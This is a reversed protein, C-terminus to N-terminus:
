ILSRPEVHLDLDVPVEETYLAEAVAIGRHPVVELTLDHSLAVDHDQVDHVEHDLDVELFVEDAGSLFDCLIQLVNLSVGIVQTISVRM